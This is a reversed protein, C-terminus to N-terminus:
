SLINSRRRCASITTCEWARRSSANARSGSKSRSVLRCTFEMSGTPVPTRECCPKPSEVAPAAKSGSIVTIKDELTWNAIIKGRSVPGSVAAAMVRVVISRVTPCSGHLAFM